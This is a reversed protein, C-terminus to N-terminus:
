PAVPAAPADVLDPRRRLTVVGLWAAALDLAIHLLVPVLLSGSLVYIAGFVLSLWVILAVSRWPQYRHVLGFGIAPISVAAAVGLPSSGTFGLCYSILFGRFVIEENIGAALSLPISWRFERPTTPLFPMDRAWSSVTARLRKEALRYRTELLIVVVFLLSLGISWPGYAGVRFGLADLPRGAVWWLVVTVVGILTLLAANALYTSIRAATDWEMKKGQPQGRFVAYIGGLVILVVFAHEWWTPEIPM